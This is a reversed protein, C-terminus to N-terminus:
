KMLVMKGGLRHEGAQLVYLYIGSSMNSADWNVRHMGPPRYGDSLVAVQRGLIDYVKLSVFGGEPIGYAITTVPNFPNPYNQSLTFEDPVTPQDALAINEFPDPVGNPVWPQFGAIFNDGSKVFPFGDEVWIEDPHNGLRGYMMYNGAAYSGPVPFFMDPRNISWGPQYNSFSRQVVTTPSGGGYEVDLWADFNAPTSGVNEVYVDFYLNGGGAPVPSGSQYTLDIVLEPMTTPTTFLVAVGPALEPVHSDYDGNYLLELGITESPDEIGVTNQSPDSVGNYQFLIQGDGTTTPYYVPDYLIVEFTEFASTPLYQRVENYEVVFYHNTEDYYYSVTGSQQPSLDEWALMAPPGDPDPIHSNSYDTETTTGMAVWGNGCVSITNYTQGYYQFDFPLSVQFTQDDQTFNLLTGSGGANPDVEIWDFTPGGEDYNDYAMYGYADPGMPQYLPDGVMLDFSSSGTYGEDCTWELRFTVSYELPCSPSVEFAYPTVAEGTTHPDMDPYTSANQTITIYPDNCTLTASIGTGTEWGNNTMTPTFFVSEGPDLGGNGNGGAVDDIVGGVYALSVPQPMYNEAQEILYLCPEINEAVLGPIQSPSPWFGASYGGIEFVFALSKPKEVQEGYHWDNADGNVEYLIEWPTGYSYGNWQQMTQSLSVFTANDPTYGWPSYPISWSYLIMDSYSHFNMVIGFSHLDSFQRVNETEPESFPATGRYTESGPSGSSGINNYGWNFGYNRNLDVGYVGGGNDRRNKRWMGGGSPAIQENYVYGDPNLVPLIWIEREDVLYTINPDVGYNSCLTDLLAMCVTMGMPERAHILGNFFIEPEDEDIEPNDSVKIVWQERGEISQGISFVESTINPYLAHMQNLEAVVESYTRFGGMDDTAARESYFRTMDEILVEARYGLARIQALDDPHCVVDIYQDKVGGTIDLGLELLPIVKVEPNIDVRVLLYPPEDALLNTGMALVILAATLVVSLHKM